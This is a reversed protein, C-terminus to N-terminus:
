PNLLTMAVWPTADLSKSILATLLPDEINCWMTLHVRAIPCETNDVGHDMWSNFLWAEGPGYHQVDINGDPYRVCMKTSPHTILPIHVIAEDNLYSETEWNLLRHNHFDIHSNPSLRGIHSRYMKKCIHTTIYEMMYPLRHWLDTPYFEMDKALLKREGVIDKARPQYEPYQLAAIDREGPIWLRKQLILNM